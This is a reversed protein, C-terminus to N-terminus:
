HDPSAPETWYSGGLAAPGDKPVYPTFLSRRKIDSVVTTKEPPMQTGGLVEMAEVLNGITASIGWTRIAPSLAKVQVPGAGGAGANPGWCNMGNM